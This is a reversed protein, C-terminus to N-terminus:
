IFQERPCKKSMLKVEKGSIVKLKTFKSLFCNYKKQCYFGSKSMFIHYCTWLIGERYAGWHHWNWDRYCWCWASVIMAERLEPINYFELRSRTRFPWSVRPIVTSKWYWCREFRVWSGQSHQIQDHQGCQQSQGHQLHLHEGHRVYDIM